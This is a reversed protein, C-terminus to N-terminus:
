LDFSTRPVRERTWTVQASTAPADLPVGAATLTALNPATAIGDVSTLAPLDEIHLHTLTRPLVDIRSVRPCAAVILTELTTTALPGLDVVDCGAIELHRLNPLRALPALDVGSAGALLLHELATMGALAEFGRVPRAQIEARWEYRSPLERGHVRLTRVSTLPALPTLDVDPGNNEARLCLSTLEARLAACRPSTGRAALPVLDAMELSPHWLYVADGYEWKQREYHAMPTVVAAALVWDFLEADGRRQIEDIASRVKFPVGCHLLPRLRTRPDLM